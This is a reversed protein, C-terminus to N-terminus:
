EALFALLERNFALPREMMPVHGTEDLLLIRSGPILRGFEDADAVPVLGDERGHVILTPCAIEPLRDRFDYSVLADMAMLFGPKATGTGQAHLLDLPMRTPHRMVARFALHRLRPRLLVARERAPSGSQAAFLRVFTMIPQRRLDSISIGAADVLMLREVRDPHRIAMEAATFGGMSNGVVAVAGLDLRACLEEVCAAYNTISVGDRPMESEGFGPLDLAVVRRHEAIARLNELWNQWCGALGHIFVVPPGDGEGLSVVNVGRGDIEVTQMLPAWDIARWDPQGPRGYEEDASLAARMRAPRAAPIM